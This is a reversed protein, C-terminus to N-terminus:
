HASVSMLCFEESGKDALTAEPSPLAEKEMGWGGWGGGVGTRGDCSSFWLSSFVSDCM